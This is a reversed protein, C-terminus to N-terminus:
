PCWQHTDLVADEAWRTPQVSRAGPGEDACAREARAVMVPV